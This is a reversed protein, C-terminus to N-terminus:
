KNKEVIGSITNEKNNAFYQLMTKYGSDETQINISVFTIGKEYYPKTNYNLSFIGALNGDPYTRIIDSKCVNNLNIYSANENRFGNGWQKNIINLLNGTVGGGTIIIIKNKLESLKLNELDLQNSVLYLELYKELISAISNCTNIDEHVNVELVLFLPDSTNKFSNESIFKITNEFSIATTTFIDFNNSEKGHAIIPKSHNYPDRFIDLEICRVGKDLANKIGDLSAISIHQIGTIYTNHSSLIMVDKLTLNECIKSMNKYTFNSNTISINTQNNTQNNSQNDQKKICSNFFNGM